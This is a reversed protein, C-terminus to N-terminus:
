EALVKRAWERAEADIDEEDDQTVATSQSAAASQDGESLKAAIGGQWLSPEDV